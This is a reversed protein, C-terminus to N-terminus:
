PIKPLLVLINEAWRPPLSRSHRLENMWQLLAAKGGNRVVEELLEQSILDTSVSKHHKGLSLAHELEEGTFDEVRSPETSMFTRRTELM